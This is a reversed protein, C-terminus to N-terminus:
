ELSNGEGANMPSDAVEPFLREVAKTEYGRAPKGESDDRIVTDRADHRLTKRFETKFSRSDSYDSPHFSQTQNIPWMEGQIAEIGKSNESDFIIM